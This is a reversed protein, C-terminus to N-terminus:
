IKKIIKQKVINKKKKLKIILFFRYFLRSIISLLFASLPHYKCDNIKHNEKEV